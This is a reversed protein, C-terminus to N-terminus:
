CSIFFCREASSHTILPSMPATKYNNRLYFNGKEPMLKRYLYQFRWAVLCKWGGICSDGVLTKENGNGLLALRSQNRGSGPRADGGDGYFAGYIVAVEAHLLAGFTATM